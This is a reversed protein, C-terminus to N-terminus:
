PVAIDDHESFNAPSIEDPGLSGTVGVLPRTALISLLRRRRVVVFSHFSWTSIFPIIITFKSHM